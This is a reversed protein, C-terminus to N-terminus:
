QLLGHIGIVFDEFLNKMLDTSCYLLEVVLDFVVVWFKQFNRHSTDLM